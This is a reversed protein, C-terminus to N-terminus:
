QLVRFPISNVQPAAGDSGVAVELTYDGAELGSPTFTATVKDLGQLVAIEHQRWDEAAASQALATQAFAISALVLLGCGAGVRALCNLLTSRDMDSAMASKM